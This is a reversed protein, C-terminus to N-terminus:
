YAGGRYPKRDPNQQQRSPPLPTTIEVSAPSRPSMNGRLSCVKQDTPRLRLVMLGPRVLRSEHVEAPSRVTPDLSLPFERERVTGASQSAEIVSAIMSDRHYERVVFVHGTAEWPLRHVLLDGVGPEEGRYLDLADFAKSTSLVLGMRDTDYKPAKPPVGTRRYVWMTRFDWTTFRGKRIDTPLAASVFSSCDLGSSGGGLLYGNHLLPIKVSKGDKLSLQLPESLKLKKQAEKREVEGLGELLILRQTLGDHSTPSPNKGFLEALEASRALPNTDKAPKLLFELLPNNGTLKARELAATKRRELEDAYEKALRAKEAANQYTQAFRIKEGEPLSSASESIEDGLTTLHDRAQQMRTALEPLPIGEYPAALTASDSAAADRIASQAQL